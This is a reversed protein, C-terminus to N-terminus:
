IGGLSNVSIIVGSRLDCWEGSVVRLEARCAVPSIADVLLLRLHGALPPLLLYRAAAIDPFADVRRVDVLTRRRRVTDQLLVFVAVELLDLYGGWKWKGGQFFFM